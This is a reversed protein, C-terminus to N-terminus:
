EREMYLLRATLSGINIKAKFMVPTKYEDDTLWVLLKDGKNFGRGAGVLVPEVETCNFEGAPVNIRSKGHVICRIPYDKRHYYCRIIVTDGAILESTRLQYLLSLYNQIGPEAQAQLEGKKSQYYVMHNGHDFLAWRSDTFRGESIHQEFFDTYLNSVRCSAHIYDRVPYFTSVFNNSIAKGHHHIFSPDISDREAVLIGWGARLFGWGGDFVLKERKYPIVVADTEFLTDKFGKATKLSDIFSGSYRNGGVENEHQEWRNEDEIEAAGQAFVGCAGTLALFFFLFLYQIVRTTYSM